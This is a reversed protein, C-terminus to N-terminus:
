SNKALYFLGLNLLILFWGVPPCIVFATIIAVIWALIFFCIWIYGSM